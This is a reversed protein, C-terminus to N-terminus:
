GEASLLVAEGFRGWERECHGTVAGMGLALAGLLVDKAM